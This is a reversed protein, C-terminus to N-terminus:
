FGARGGLSQWIMWYGNKKQQKYTYVTYAQQLNGSERHKLIGGKRGNGMSLEPKDQNGNQVEGRWWCGQVVPNGRVQIEVQEQVNWRQLGSFYWQDPRINANQIKCRILMFSMVMLGIAGSYILSYWKGNNIHCSVLMRLPNTLLFWQCNNNQVQCLYFDGALSLWWTKTLEVDHKKGWLAKWKIGKLLLCDFERCPM